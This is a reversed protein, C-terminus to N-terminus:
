AETMCTPLRFASAVEMKPRASSNFSVMKAAMNMRPATFRSYVEGLMFCVAALSSRGHSTVSNWRITALSAVSPMATNSLTPRNVASGM